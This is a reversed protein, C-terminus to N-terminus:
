GASGALFFRLMERSADPGKPDTYTGDPSGGSWAHGAGHILWHEARVRGNRDRVLTRTSSRGGASSSSVTQPRGAAFDAQAELLRRANEPHVTADADGHIIITRIRLMHPDPRDGTEGRMAAFASVVDSAAGYPLGSHVGIAAYLDPHTAGMVAAMAGGASLGAIFIRQPDANFESVLKRTLRAIIAPEGSERRQNQPNFWNWCSSPNAGRPQVPYAIIFGHEEALDNMRTGAAFDDADQTCGHLMILLPPRPVPNRPIYLKYSRTGALCSFSRSLYQAGEPIALARRTRLRPSSGLHLGRLKLNRLAAVVDGLPRAVRAAGPKQPAPLSRLANRPPPGADPRPANRSLAHQIARTAENLKGTRILRAADRMAGALKISM